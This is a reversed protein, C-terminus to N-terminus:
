REIEVFTFHVEDNDWPYGKESESGLKMFSMDGYKDTTAQKVKELDDNLHVSIVEEVNDHTMTVYYGM